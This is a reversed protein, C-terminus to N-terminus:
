HAYIYIYIIIQLQIYSYIRVAKDTFSQLATGSPDYSHGAGEEIDMDLKGSNLGSM